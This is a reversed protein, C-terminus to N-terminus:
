NEDNSEKKAENAEDAENVENTENAEDAEVAENVENVENAEKAEIEAISEFETVGEDDSKNKDKDDEDSYDGYGYGGYGYGYGYGGYGYGYGYKGGYYKSKGYKGYRGYGGYGYNGYGYRGYGKTGFVGSAMNFICGFIEIKSGGFSSIAETIKQAKIYDQRVVFVVGDVCDKIELADDIVGVPPADVIVYDFMGKLAEILEAMQKSSMLEAANGVSRTGPLVYLGSKKLRVIADELNCVGTIVDVIGLSNDDLPLNFQRRLSPNRLDCDIIITRLNKKKFSIALNSSLTTKGEGAGTSTILFSNLSKAKCKKIITNRISYISEKYRSDVHKADISVVRSSNSSKKNVVKIVAGLRENNLLTQIDDPKRVTVNFMELFLILGLCAIIGIGTGILTRIRYTVINVPESSASPPVVLVMETNGVIYEAVDPFNNIVSKLLDYALQYDSATATITFLNTNEIATATVTGPMYGLELDETVANTLPPSTIIYPFAAELQSSNVASFSAIDNASPSITFTASASYMPVYNKYTYIVMICCGICAFIPIINWYKRVGELLRMLIEGISLVHASQVQGNNNM